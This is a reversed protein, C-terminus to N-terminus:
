RLKTDLQWVLHVDHASLWVSGYAVRVGGSGAPPGFCTVVTNTKPDIVSLLTKGARVWVAGGGAAIDGGPGPVGVPITAIVANSIPDIRSVTGDGQNLVWVSGEGATLFRPTPGVAVTAIVRGTKPDIRQVTGKNPNYPGTNTIWVAGFGGVVGFSNPRVKISDAVRNTQPDIQLLIGATDTMVWISGAAEALTSEYNVIPANIRATVTQTAPDIRVLQNWKCSAVWLSGFGSTMGGCPGEVAVRGIVGEASVLEVADTGPNMVWVSVSDYPEIFDPFGEVLVEHRLHDGFQVEAPLKSESISQQDKSFSSAALILSICIVVISPGVFKIWNSLRVFASEKSLKWISM